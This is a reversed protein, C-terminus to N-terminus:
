FMLVSVRDEIVEPGTQGDVREVRVGGCAAPDKRGPLAM